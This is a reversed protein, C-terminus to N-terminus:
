CKRFKANITACKEVIKKNSFIKSAGFRRHWLWKEEIKRLYCQEQGRKLIYLNSPNRTGKSITKGIDIEHVVCEKSRFVVENWQDCMQSVSLLNHNLGDVYM